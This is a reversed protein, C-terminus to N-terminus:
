TRILDIADGRCLASLFDEGPGGVVRGRSRHPFELSVDTGSAMLADLDLWRRLRAGMAQGDPSPPLAAPAPMCARLDIAVSASDGTGTRWAVAVCVTALAAGDAHGTQAAAAAETWESAHMWSATRMAEDESRAPVVVFSHAPASGSTARSVKWAYPVRQAPSNRFAAPHSAAAEFPRPIGGFKDSM